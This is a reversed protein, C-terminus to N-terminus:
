REAEVELTLGDIAAIRVTEGAPVSVEARANWYEGDLRVRGVPDIDDVVTATVATGRMGNGFVLATYVIALVVGILWGIGTTRLHRPLPPPAGSPRRRRTGRVHRSPPVREVEPVVM